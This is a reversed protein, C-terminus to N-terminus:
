APPPCSATPRLKGLGHRMQNPFLCARWRRRRWQYSLTWFLPNGWAQPMAIPHPLGPCRVGGSELLRLESYLLTARNPPACIRPAAESAVRLRSRTAGAFTAGIAVGSWLELVVAVDQKLYKGITPTVTRRSLRQVEAPAVGTRSSTREVRYCDFRCRLCRLQRLRRHLPDSPSEALTCAM